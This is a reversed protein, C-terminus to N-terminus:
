LPEIRISGTCLLQIYKWADFRYKKIEKLPITNYIEDFNKYFLGNIKGSTRLSKNVLHITKYTEFRGYEVSKIFGVYDNLKITKGFPYFVSFWRITNNEKNIIIHKFDKFIILVIIIIASFLFAM